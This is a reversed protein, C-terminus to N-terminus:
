FRQRTRFSLSIPKRGPSWNGGIAQPPQRSSGSTSVHSNAELQAGRGPRRSHADSGGPPLPGQSLEGRRRPRHKPRFAHPLNTGCRRAPCLLAPRRVRACTTSSGLQHGVRVLGDPIHNGLNRHRGGVAHATSQWVTHICALGVHREAHLAIAPIRFGGLGNSLDTHRALRRSPSGVRPRCYVAPDRDTNVRRRSWFVRNRTGSPYRDAVALTAYLTLAVSVMGPILPATRGAHLLFTLALWPAIPVQM